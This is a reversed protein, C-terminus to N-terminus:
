RIQGRVVGSAYLSSHANVYLADNKLSNYLVDTLTFIKDTAFDAANSALGLIVGGNVGSAGTHIHAAVLTEGAALNTVSIRSYLKKDSTVRIRATGTASTSVAPVENAGSLTIDMAVEVKTNIQSRVLGSAVQNSHVNFYIENADSKLSDVLTQRIGMITGTASAGTFTPNFGLIVGGNTGANGTHFHAGTLADGSALGTVSFNYQLSNDSMLKFNATGTENRGAPAPNEFKASLSVNWEKVVTVSPTNEKKCSFLFASFALLSITNIFLRKM